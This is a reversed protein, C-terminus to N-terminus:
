AGKLVGGAAPAAWQLTVQQGNAPTDTLDYFAILEAAADAANYKYLIAGGITPGIAVSAWVVDDADLYAFGGADDETVTKTTLATRAYGAAAIENAVVESVFNHAASFAYSGNVLLVRLDTAAVIQGTFDLYKGRNYWANAM